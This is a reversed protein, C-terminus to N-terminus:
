GGSCARIQEEVTQHIKRWRERATEPNESKISYYTKLKPETGSPRLAFWSGDRFLYKLVDEKPYDQYGNKYDRIETVPETRLTSGRFQKMINKIQLKGEMGEFIYPQQIDTWYGFERYLDQLADICTKGQEKYYAAMECIVMAASVADKDRAHGGVLYGYSEEYAFIVHDLANMKAGINRFGTLTEAVNIKRAAAVKSVLEGTVISKILTSGEAGAKQRSLFDFLLLGMQNGDILQFEGQHSVAAGIRDSDPDTAFVLDAGALQGQEMALKLAHGEGPNPSEVTPFDGDPEAQSKVLETQSFGAQRLTETVLEKGAGHLPSYVVKLREKAAPNDWCSCQLVAQLFARSEKEGISHLYPSSLEAAPIQFIDTVAEIYQTVVASAAPPMQCGTPDYVKYGNYEKTNHSATIVIGGACGLYRVTFSLLPTPSLCDFLWTKIGAACLVLAAERAFEKSQHRVDYAIAVGQEAACPGAEKLLYEAFGRTAKRITYQNVRNTGAGMIGRLGATGFELESGFRERIEHDDTLGTLEQRLAPDLCPNNKWLEYTEKYNM